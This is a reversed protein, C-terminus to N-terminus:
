VGWMSGGFSVAALAMGWGVPTAALAVLSVAYFGIAAGCPMAKIHIGVEESLLSNLPLENIDYNNDIMFTAMGKVMAITNLSLTLEDSSFENNNKLADKEILAFNLLEEPTSCEALISNISKIYDAYQSSIKNDAELSEIGSFDEVSMLTNLAGELEDNSPMKLNKAEAFENIATLIIENQTSNRESYM